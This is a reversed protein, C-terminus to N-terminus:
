RCCCSKAQQLQIGNVNEKNEMDVKGEKGEKDQVALCEAETALWEAAFECDRYKEFWPGGATYHIAQPLTNVGVPQTNHGVLFNWGEPVQGIEADDLWSFRHLFAGSQTNVADPTLTNINKPHSCNYLVMSSWNKRPYSTQVVGDMKVTDKPTYDHHVCMVAYRDDVLSFLDAIDANYLFDCDVFMAWGKYNALYPTLFRTFSFQTSETPDRARWYLGKERLEEQKIPIIDLSVSSHKLLSLRCVQYAIDERSDYGIFIKLPTSEGAVEPLKRAEGPQPTCPPAPSALGM